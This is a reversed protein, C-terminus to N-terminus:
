KENDKIRKVKKDAFLKYEFICCFILALLWVYWTKGWDFPNYAYSTRTKMGFLEYFPDDEALIKTVESVGLSNTIALTLILIIIPIFIALILIQKKNM